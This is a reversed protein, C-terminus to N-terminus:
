AATAKRGTDAAPPFKAGPQGLKRLFSIAAKLDRGSALWAAHMADLSVALVASPCALPEEAIIEELKRQREDNLSTGYKRQTAM